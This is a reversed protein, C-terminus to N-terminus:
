TIKRRGLMILKQIREWCLKECPEQGKLRETVKLFM